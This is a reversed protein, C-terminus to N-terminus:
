PILNQSAYNISIIAWMACAMIVSIWLFNRDHLM